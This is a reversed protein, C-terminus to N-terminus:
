CCWCARFWCDPECASVAVDTGSTSRYVLLVLMGATLSVHVLMLGVQLDIYWCCWCAHFWCDPECSGVAGAHVLQVVAWLSGVPVLVVTGTTGYADVEGCWQM